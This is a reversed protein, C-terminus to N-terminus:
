LAVAHPALMSILHNITHQLKVSINMSVGGYRKLGYGQCYILFSMNSCSLVVFVLYFVM